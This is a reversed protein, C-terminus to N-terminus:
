KKPIFFALNAKIRKGDKFYFPYTQVAFSVEDGIKGVDLDLDNINIQVPFLGGEPLIYIFRAKGESGDKKRYTRIGDAKLIGTVNIM